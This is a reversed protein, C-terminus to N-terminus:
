FCKQPFSSRYTQLNQSNKGEMLRFSQSSLAVEVIGIDPSHTEHHKLAGDSLEREVHGVSFSDVTETEPLEQLDQVLRLWVLDWHWLVEALVENVEDLHRQVLLTALPRVGGIQQLV